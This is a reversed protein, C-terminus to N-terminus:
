HHHDTTTTNSASVANMLEVTMVTATNSAHMVRVAAHRWDILQSFPLILGDAIVVPIAGAAIVESFRHNWRGHGHPVKV